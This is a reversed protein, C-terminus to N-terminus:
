LSSSGLKLGGAGDDMLKSLRYLVARRCAISRVKPQLGSWTPSMYALTEKFTFSMVRQDEFVIADSENMWVRGNRRADRALMSLHYLAEEEITFSRRTMSGIKPAGAGVDFLLSEFNKLHVWAEKSQDRKPRVDCAYARALKLDQVLEASVPRTSVKELLWEHPLRRTGDAKVHPWRFLPCQHLRCHTLFIRSWELRFYPTHGNATDDSFCMPCYAARDKSQLLPEQRDACHAGLVNRRIGVKEAYCELFSGLVNVDLDRLHGLYGIREGTGQLFDSRTIGWLSAQRDILSSISEDPM